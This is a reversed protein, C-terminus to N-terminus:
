LPLEPERRNSRRTAAASTQSRVLSWRLVANHRAQDRIVIQATRRPGDTAALFVSDELEVKHDPAEFTWVEKNPLVLMVGRGDSLRSAKVSPHLHFRVAYDDGSGRFAAGADRALVDEGDLRNGDDALTLIRRHIFGFRRRYGDHSMVLTTHEDRVERYSEVHSPGNV